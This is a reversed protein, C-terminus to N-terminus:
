AHGSTSSPEELHKVLTQAWARLSRDLENTNPHRGHKDEYVVRVAVIEDMIFAYRESPPLQMARRALDTVIMELFIRDQDDERPDM